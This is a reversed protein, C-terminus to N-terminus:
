ARTVVAGPPAAAPRARAPAALLAFAVLVLVVSLAQAARLDSELATYIALPLTQTRGAPQRRVDADRRVRGARAGLGDGRGRGPRPPRAAARRPLLAAGAVRGAHAGGGAAPTSPASPPRARRCSSRRRWSCRRWSWPRRPSRSTSGRARALGAGFCGAADSRWCCPSAPSRRRSSSRCGAAAREVVGRSAPRPAPWGAPSRRGWCSSSPWSLATTRLSLLLAPASWRSARARALARRSRHHRVARRRPAVLFLLLAAGAM